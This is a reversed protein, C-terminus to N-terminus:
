CARPGSGSGHVSQYPDVAIHSNGRILTVRASIAQIATAVVILYEM